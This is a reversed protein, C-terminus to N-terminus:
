DANINYSQRLAIRDTDLVSTDCNAVHETDIVNTCHFSCVNSGISNALCKTGDIPDGNYTCCVALREIRDANDNSISIDCCDNCYRICCSREV